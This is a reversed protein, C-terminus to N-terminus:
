HKCNVALRNSYRKTLAAIVITVDAPETTLINEAPAHVHRQETKARPDRPKGEAEELSLSLSLESSQPSTM